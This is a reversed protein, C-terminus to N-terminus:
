GAAPLEEGSRWLKLLNHTMTVLDWEGRVKRLGRLMFRRFGRVSLIQGFVPEPTTKRLGYIRTGEPTRLKARMKDKPSPAPADSTANNASPCM